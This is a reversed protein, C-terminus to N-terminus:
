AELPNEVVPVERMSLLGSYRRFGIGFDHFSLLTM